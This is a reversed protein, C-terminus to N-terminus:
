SNAFYLEFRGHRKFCRNFNNFIINCCNYKTHVNTDTYTLNNTLSFTSIETNIDTVNVFIHLKIQYFSLQPLIIRMESM